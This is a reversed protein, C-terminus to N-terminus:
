LLNAKIETASSRRKDAIANDLSWRGGGAIMLALSMGIVLLHFEFGEGAQKGFWNMFFGYPLHVLIIAGVMDCLVGFACFRTFLGLALGIAGFSEAAIVLATLIPPIHYHQAFADITAAVGRGGFWGLLKMAGHPFMVIALTIRIIFGQWSRDSRFFWEM